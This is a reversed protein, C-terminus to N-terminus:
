PAPAFQDRPVWRTNFRARWNTEDVEDFADKAPPTVPLPEVTDGDVVNYDGDKDWGVTYLFFSRRMGEAKPPLSAADFTLTLADGANILVLEEDRANVLELVDGYRTCWGQLTTRWPPTASIDKFSPTPPHGPARSKIESFGRFYLDASDPLLEYKRIGTDSNRTFLAIRDWRIEFTTTLRLRGAGRPLKGALDVLITKTKGAPMGVNVEIRTWSDPGTEVELMPSVITLSENQSMAINRSADGYQLWGTLALVYPRDPDLPGFDLTLALPHCMGRYPPPLPVGPAAFDGDISQLAQTRDVGDDGVVTLLSRASSMAWLESPPFPPMMLKDTPHIERDPPHDIAILKAHDLYFLERTEETLELVYKGQRPRLTSEDGVLVFEDPDAPLLVDRELSLGLPSNGLLDTVFRFSSGDWAYLYPCSGTAVNKELITIPPTDPGVAVEFKNDVVGNTWITQVCDLNTRGGMGLEIAQSLVSRTIWFTGDRVEVHTGLASPNTKITTLRLKLQGNVHGGDNRLCHLEQGVTLLTLDSDGDGDLDGAVVGTLAPLEVTALGTADTMDIWNDVGGNRWLRIRGRDHDQLDHGVALLDLWGDNDYDITTVATPVLDSFEIHGRQPVKGYVITAGTDSILVLDPYGNNDLDDALLFDAPPMPGPPEPLLAFRGVRQNRYVLTSQEGRALIIDTAIDGDLDIALVDCVPGTPEIGVRETVNEFRGNGANQWLEVGSERALLLDLDGDHDYDVWRARDAGVGLMGSADTVDQYENAQLYKLLRIGERGVLLLDEHADTAPDYKKGSPTDNFFDGVLCQAVTGGLPTDLIVPELEAAEGETITMRTLSAANDAVMLVCRGHADIETVDVAAAAPGGTPLWSSTVDRFRVAITTSPPRSLRTHDDPTWPEPETHICNELAQASRAEDGFLKRLRVFEEQHKAFAVRDREKRAYGALQFHASAHLPDLRITEQLQTKAQEHKETAQYAIALQFRVTATETDLRAAEEFATVAESFRSLRSYALGKLYATAASEPEVERAADLSVLAEETTRALLQARALNRWAEASQSQFSVVAQFTEVSKAANRNELYAKGVNMLRVYDGTPKCTSYLFGLVVVALLVALIIVRRFRVSVM